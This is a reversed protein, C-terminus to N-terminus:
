TAPAPLGCSGFYGECDQPTISRMATGIANWLTQKTRKAVTRLSGKVKSWMKEIPNFDPSYPPLYRVRAGAAHIVSEVRASKHCSLNDMVVVDGKQLQPTLCHELFAMFATTDTAGEFVLGACSGSMRMAGIM